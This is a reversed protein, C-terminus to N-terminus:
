FPAVILNQLRYSVWIQILWTKILGGFQTFYLDLIYRLICVSYLSIYLFPLFSLFPESNRFELVVTGRAVHCRLSHLWAIQAYVTRMTKHTEHKM